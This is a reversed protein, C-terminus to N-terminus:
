EGGSLREIEKEAKSAWDSGPHGEVIKKLYKRAQDVKGARVYNQTMSWWGRCQREAQKTKDTGGAERREGRPRSESEDDAASRSKLEDLRKRAEDGFKCDAYKRAAALLLRRALRNSGDLIAKEGKDLAQQAKEAIAAAEQAAKERAPCDSDIASAQVYLLYAQGHRGAKKHKAALTRAREIQAGLGHAQLWERVDKSDTVCRHDVGPVKVFTANAGFGRYYAYGTEVYPLRHDETGCCLLVNKGRIASAKRGIAAMENAGAGFLLAGDWLEPALCMMRHACFAGESFGGIFLLGKDLKLHKGLFEITVKLNALNKQYYEFGEEGRLYYAVGVLIYDRGGTMMQVNAITPYWNVGHLWFIAPWQQKPSYNSPVHVLFEQYQKDIIQTGPIKVSLTRGARFPPTAARSVEKSSKRSRAALAPPGAPGFLALLVALNATATTASLKGM